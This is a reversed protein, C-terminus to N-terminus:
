AERTVAGEHWGAAAPVLGCPREGLAAKNLAGPSWWRFALVSM